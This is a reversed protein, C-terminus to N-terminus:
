TIILSTLPHPEREQLHSSREGSRAEWEVPGTPIVETLHLVFPSGSLRLGNNEASATGTTQRTNVRNIALSNKEQLHFVQQLGLIRSATIFHLTLDEDPMFFSKQPSNEGTMKVKARKIQASYNYYYLNWECRFATEAIVKRRHTAIFLVAQLASRYVTSLILLIAVKCKIVAERM